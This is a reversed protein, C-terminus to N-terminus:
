NGSITTNSSNSFMNATPSMKKAFNLARYGCTLADGAFSAGLMLDAYHALGPAMHSFMPAVAGVIGAIDTGVHFIEIGKDLPSADGNRCVRVAQPIDTLLTVGRVFPIFVKDAIAVTTDSASNNVIGKVSAAAVRLTLLPDTDSYQNIADATARIGKQVGHIVNDAVSPGQSSISMLDKGQSDKFTIQNNNRLKNMAGEVIAPNSMLTKVFEDRVEAETPKAGNPISPPATPISAVAPAPNAVKM